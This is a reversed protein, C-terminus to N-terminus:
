VHEATPSVLADIVDDDDRRSVESVCAGGGTRGDHSVM